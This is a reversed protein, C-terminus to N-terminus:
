SLCMQVPASVATCIHIETSNMLFSVNTCACFSSYLITDRESNMLREGTKAGLAMSQM